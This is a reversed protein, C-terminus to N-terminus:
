RVLSFSEFGLIEISKANMWGFSENDLSEQTLKSLIKRSNPGSLALVGFKETVNEIIVKENPLLQKCEMIRTIIRNVLTGANNGEDINSYDIYSDIYKVRYLPYEPLLYENIISKITDTIDFSSMIKNQYLQKYM